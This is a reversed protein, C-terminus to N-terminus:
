PALFVHTAVAGDSRRLDGTRAIVNQHAQVHEACHPTYIIHPALPFVNFHELWMQKFCAKCLKGYKWLDEYM